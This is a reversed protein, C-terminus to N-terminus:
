RNLWAAVQDAWSNELLRGVSKDLYEAYRECIDHLRAEDDALREVAVWQNWAIHINWDPRDIECNPLRYHFTPRAKIRDDDVSEHVRAEDLKAFLPLMDLSRNRTPNDALYDDILETLAPAYDPAVVKRIYAAPFPDVYATIRRTMDVAAQAKLWDHLCLYAQLHRRITDADLAPLEPNFQMGFAYVLNASTGKAGVARLRDVLRAADPLREIPLPPSVVELPVVQEAGTRLVQEAMEELSGQAEDREGAERGWNKLYAFDLEVVWDGAKDGRVIHEYPSVTEVTGRVFEAVTDSLVAIQLGGMELEIGVRRAAGEETTRHPPTEFTPDTM